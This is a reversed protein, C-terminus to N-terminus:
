GPGEDVDVLKECWGKKTMQFQTVPLADLFEHGIVILPGASPNSPVQKITSHWTIPIPLPSTSASTSPSSPISESTTSALKTLDIEGRMLEVPRGANMLSEIVEEKQADSIPTPTPTSTSTSTSASAPSLGATKMAQKLVEEHSQKPKVQRVLKQVKLQEVQEQRMTPSSECLHVQVGTRADKFQNVTRLVDKMLTGKGPGLELLQWKSPRGLSEWVSVVWIGVMEGFIQGLEPSTIFDGEISPASVASSSTSTSSDSPSVVAQESSATSTSTEDDKKGGIVSSASRTTYYGFEPHQSCQQMYEAVPIPGRIQLAFCLIGYFRTLM